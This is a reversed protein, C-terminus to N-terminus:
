IGKYTKRRVCNMITAKDVGHVKALKQYSTGGLAYAYRIELVDEPQLHKGKKGARGKRTKDWMNIKHTGLFLHDPNVCPPNDCTHLVQMGEPIAGHTITWSARHARKGLGKPTSCGYGNQDKAGTWHWCSEGKEVKLWFREAPTTTMYLPPRYVGLKEFHLKLTPPTTGSWSASEGITAGGIYHVLARDLKGQLDKRRREAALQREERYKQNLEIRARSRSRVVTVGAEKLHRKVTEAGFATEIDELPIGEGHAKIWNAVEGTSPYGNRGSEWGAGKLRRNLAQASIGNKEAFDKVSGGCYRGAIEAIAKDMDDKRTPIGKRRLVKDITALSLDVEKAIDALPSGARYMSEARKDKQVRFKKTIEQLTTGSRNIRNRVTHTSIGHKIALEKVSLGAKFDKMLVRGNRRGEAHTGRKVQGALAAAQERMLKRQAYIDKPTELCEIFDSSGAKGEAILNARYGDGVTGLTRMYIWSMLGVM